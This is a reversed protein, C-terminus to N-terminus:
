SKFYIDPFSTKFYQDWSSEAKYLFKLLPKQTMIYLVNGNRPNIIPLRLLCVFFSVLVLSAASIRSSIRGNKYLYKPPYQFHGSIRGSKPLNVGADMDM